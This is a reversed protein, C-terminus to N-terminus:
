FFNMDNKKCKIKGNNSSWLSSYLNLPNTPLNWIQITSSIRWLQRAHSVFNQLSMWNKGTANDTMNKSTYAFRLKAERHLIDDMVTNGSIYTM